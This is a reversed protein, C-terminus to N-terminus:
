CWIIIPDNRAGDHAGIQVFYFRPEQTICESVVYDLVSFPRVPEVYRLSTVRYGSMRILSAIRSRWNGLLKSGRRSRFLAVANINM